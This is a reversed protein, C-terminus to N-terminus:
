YDNGMAKEVKGGPLWQDTKHRDPNTWQPYKLYTSNYFM